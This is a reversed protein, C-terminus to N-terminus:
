ELESTDTPQTDRKYSVINVNIEGRHEAEIDVKERWGYRNSMNYYWSRSNGLCEGRSQKRGIDEWGEKGKRQARELEEQVFEDPYTSLYKRITTEGLDDFCDLSFGRKVHELLRDFIKRRLTADDRISEMFEKYSLKKGKM